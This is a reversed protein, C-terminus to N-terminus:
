WSMQLSSIKSIKRFRKSCSKRLFIKSSKPRHWYCFRRTFNVSISFLQHNYVEKYVVHALAVFALTYFKRSIFNIYSTYLIKQQYFKHLSKRLQIPDPWARHNRWISTFESQHRLNLNDNLMSKLFCYYLLVFSKCFM